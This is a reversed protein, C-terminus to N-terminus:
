NASKSTAAPQYLRRYIEQNRLVAQVYDRTETFPISEVFEAPERFSKGTTWQVVRNPGANYAALTQEVNGGNQDLMGRLVTTGIKLNMAPQLLVQATVRPVGAQRAYLRGTGPRVQTLGYAKARSLAGPNFESEQRILGAVLYPDLGHRTANAILESRYPLPFLLEWFRRPAGDPPLNLYDPVLAKMARVGIYAADAAGAMEMALLAPQGDGRAGFRLETDALDDLGAGRLLRSRTIRATTAATPAAAIPQGQPLKLSGTFEVESTSVAAGAVKPDAMRRAALMGYYYNGYSRTLREFDARAAAFDGDQEAQRGLFYLAAAFTFHQPYKQLHERLLGAADPSGKFYAQFTVKWHSLPSTPDNPFDNYATKYLPVFEDSRDALLFNNAADVLAKLRWSSHAYHSSLRELAALMDAENGLRRACQELYFLREADAESDAIELGALYSRAEATRGNLYDAEAWRVRAQDRELTPAHEAIARYEDRAQSYLQANLLRDAYRMEQAPLPAPYAAGMADKLTVLAAAARTAADGAIYQYYIRQYFDAANPLDGAAQYCDALTIDGEPQSLEAYHSRLLRVAASPDGAKLARAELVWAKGALPSAAPGAHVHALDQEVGALDNAEVRAAGLYYATYDAIQRSKPLAQRLGAIAASYDKQEYAVVGLALQAQAAEGPHASAYNEIATRQADSPSLRYARVLEPLGRPAASQVAAAGACVLCAAACLAIANRSIANCWPALTIRAWYNRMKM